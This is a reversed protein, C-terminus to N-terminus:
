TASRATETSPLLWFRISLMCVYLIWVAAIISWVSRVISHIKRYTKKSNSKEKHKTAHNLYVFKMSFCIMIKVALNNGHDIYAMDLVFAMYLLSRRNDYLPLMLPPLEYNVVRVINVRVLNTYLSGNLTQPFVGSGGYGRSHDFGPWFRYNAINNRNERTGPNELADM